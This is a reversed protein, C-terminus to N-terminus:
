RRGVPPTPPTPFGAPLGALADPVDPFAAPLAPASPVSPSPPSPVPAQRADLDALLHDDDRKTTLQADPTATPPAPEASSADLPTDPVSVTAQVPTDIPLARPTVISSTSNVPLSGSEDTVKKASDKVTTVTSDAGVEDDARLKVSFSKNLLNSKQESGSFTPPIKSFKGKATMDQVKKDANQGVEKNGLFSLPLVNRKHGSHYDSAESDSTFSNSSSSVSHKSFDANHVQRMEKMHTIPMPTHRDHHITAANIGMNAFALLPVLAFCHMTTSQSPHHLVFSTSPQSLASQSSFNVELMM